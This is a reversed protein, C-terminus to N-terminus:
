EYVDVLRNLLTELLWSLNLELQATLDVGVPVSMGGCDLLCWSHDVDIWVDPGHRQIQGCVPTKRGGLRGGHIGQHRTSPHLEVCMGGM